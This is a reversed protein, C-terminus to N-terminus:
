TEFAYVLHCLRRFVQDRSHFPYCTADVFDGFDNWRRGRLVCRHGLCTLSLVAQSRYRNCGHSFRALLLGLDDQLSGILSLVLDIVAPFLRLSQMMRRLVGGPLLM